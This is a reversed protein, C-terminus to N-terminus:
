EEAGHHYFPWTPQPLGLSEQEFEGKNGATLMAFLSSKEQETLLPSSRLTTILKRDTATLPESDASPRYDMHLSHITRETRQRLSRLIEFGAPDSDGFHWLEAPALRLCHIVSTNAMGGRFGSSLLLIGSHLKALELLTSENEVTMWRTAASEIKGTRLDSSSIHVPLDLASFDLRGRATVLQGPGHLWCGGGTETIGLDALTQIKGQTLDTLITELPSQLAKLRKSKGFLACSAFRQYSEGQWALLRLMAELLEHAEEPRRPDFPPTIIGSRMNAALRACYTSWDNAYAEPVDRKAMDQFLGALNQRLTGPAAPEFQEVFSEAQSLPLRVKLIEQPSRPATELVLLGRAALTKLEHEALDRAEGHLCRTEKLLQNYPVVLDRKGVGRRGALSNKYRTLLWQVVPSM